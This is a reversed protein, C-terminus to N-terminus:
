LFIPKYRYFKKREYDKRELKLKNTPWGEKRLVGLHMFFQGVQPEQTHICSGM